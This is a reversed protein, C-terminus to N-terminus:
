MCVIGRAIGIAALGYVLSSAGFPISGHVLSLKVADAVVLLVGNPSEPYDGEEQGREYGIEPCATQVRKFTRVEHRDASGM